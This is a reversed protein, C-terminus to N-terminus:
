SFGCAQSLLREMEGKERGSEKEKLRGGQREEGGSQSKMSVKQRGICAEREKENMEPQEKKVARIERERM